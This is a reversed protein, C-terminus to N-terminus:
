YGSVTLLFTSLMSCDCLPITGNWNGDDMCKRVSSGKLTNFGCNLCFYVAISGVDVGSYCAIGNRIGLSFFPSDCKVVDPLITGDSLETPNCAANDFITFVYGSQFM